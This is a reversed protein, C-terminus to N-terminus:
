TSVIHSTLLLGGNPMRQLHSMIEFLPFQISQQTIVSDPRFSLETIKRSCTASSTGIANCPRMAGVLRGNRWSLLVVSTSKFTHGLQGVCTSYTSCFFPENARNTEEDATRREPQPTMHLLEERSKMVLYTYIKREMGKKDRRLDTGM